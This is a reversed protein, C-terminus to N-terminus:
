LSAFHDEIVDYIHIPSVENRNLSEIFREAEERVSSFDRIHHDGCMFGYATYSVGEENVRQETTLSWM